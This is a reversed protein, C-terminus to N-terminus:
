LLFPSRRMHQGNPTTGLSAMFPSVSGGSARVPTWGGDAHGAEGGDTRRCVSSHEGDGPNQCKGKGVIHTQGRKHGESHHLVIRRRFLRFSTGTLDSGHFLRFRDIPEQCRKM